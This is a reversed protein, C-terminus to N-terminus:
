IPFALYHAKARDLAAALLIAEHRTLTLTINDRMNQTRGHHLSGCISRTRWTFSTLRRQGVFGLSSPSAFASRRASGHRHRATAGPLGGSALISLRMCRAATWLMRLRKGLPPAAGGRCLM